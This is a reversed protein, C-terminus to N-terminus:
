DSALVSYRISLPASTMGTATAFYKSSTSAYIFELYLTIMRGTTVSREKSKMSCPLYVKSTAALAGFSSALGARPLLGDDSEGLTLGDLDESLLCSGFLLYRQGRALPPETRTGHM